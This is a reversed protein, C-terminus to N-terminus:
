CAAGERDSDRPLRCPLPFVSSRRIGANSLAGPAARTVSVLISSRKSLKGTRDRFPRGHTTSSGNPRPLPSGSNTHSGIAPQTSGLHSLTAGLRKGGARDLGGETAPVAVISGPEIGGFCCFHDLRIEVCGGEGAAAEVIYQMPHRVRRASALRGLNQQLMGMGRPTPQPQQVARQVTIVAGGAIRDRGNLLRHAQEELFLDAAAAYWTM